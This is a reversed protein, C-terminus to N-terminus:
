MREPAAVGLLELGNRLVQAVAGLLRLRARTLEPKEAALVHHVTYYRHLAGALERVYYSVHHPSLSKAAATVTEPFQELLRLLQLDEPTDLVDLTGPQLAADPELGQERAKRVVSCIRAHAYQVYYVPNDMSQQKVLELDFELQSDSKRTLFIFRASDVGVEKVVDALEEFEGSRTSMAVPKGGRLLGVLQVLVIQLDDAQRGLAQVAAKMRPQYGHHDAGWIDIILDFGRAYKDAHYAIDSAFYTLDGSSKRLVRDKDDGYRTTNFWLAGDKEYALGSALLDRLTGEVKGSDVLRKESFWVDHGVRFDELDKRIGALISVMGHEQCVALAQDEPLQLLRRGERDVLEQSLDRIYDGRYYDEPEEMPVNLIQKYRLLVSLGLLRMQRGADNIYYEREVAYGAFALVRAMSDGLAAGRGHGIHLPGTPNASVYEVQVKKGQGVNVRGYDPGKDLVEGITRRWFGPTLVFNLFGPGAVQVDQIDHDQGLIAERIATALERPNKKAAKALLMAVNSALDGHSPDKPAEISASAPFELGLSDLATTLATRIHQQARM